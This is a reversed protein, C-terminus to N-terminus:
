WIWYYINSMMKRNKDFFCCFRLSKLVCMRFQVLVNQNISMRLPTPIHITFKIQSNEHRFYANYHKYFNILIHPHLDFINIKLLNLAIFSIKHYKNRIQIIQELLWNITLQNICTKLQLKQLPHRKPPAVHVFSFEPTQPLIIVPKRGNKRKSKIQQHNKTM